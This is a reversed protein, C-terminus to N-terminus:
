LLCSCISNILSFFCIAAIGSAAEKAATHFLQGPVRGDMRGDTRGGKPNGGCRIRLNNDHLLRQGDRAFDLPGRQNDRVSLTYHHGCRCHHVRSEGERGGSRDVISTSMFFSFFSFLFIIFDIEIKKERAEGNIIKLLLLLILLDYPTGCCRSTVFTDHAVPHFPFLFAM